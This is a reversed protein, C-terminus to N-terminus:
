QLPFTRTEGMKSSKFFSLLSLGLPTVPVFQFTTSTASVNTLPYLTPSVVEPDSGHCFPQSSMSRLSKRASVM